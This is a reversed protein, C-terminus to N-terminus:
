SKESSNELSAKLAEIARGIVREAVNAMAERAVREVVDEVVKTIMQELREGSIGMLQEASPEEVALSSRAPEEPAAPEVEEEQVAVPVEKEVLPEAGMQTKEFSDGAVERGALSPREEELQIEEGAESVSIIELVEAEEESEGTGEATAEALLAELDADTVEEDKGEQASDKEGSLDFTIEEDSTDQLLNELDADTIEGEEVRQVPRITEMEMDLTLDSLDVDSEEEDEPLAKEKVSTEGDVMRDTKAERVTSKEKNGGNVSLERTGEEDKDSEVLEVLEIVEDEEEAGDGSLDDLDFDLLEDKTDLPEVQTELNRAM